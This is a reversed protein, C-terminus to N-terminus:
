KMGKAKNKIIEYVEAVIEEVTRSADVIVIRDKFKNAVELYANRVKQHYELSKMDFRNVERDKNSAIRQQGIIPNLDFLLTLDPVLGKTAVMNLEYVKDIGMNGMIGQYVISSDFFRDCIIIKDTINPIILEQVQQARDAAFLLVECIESMNKDEKSLVISRIEKGIETGGPNRTKLIDLGDKELKEVVKSMVTTKGTGEGGEITIFLGM